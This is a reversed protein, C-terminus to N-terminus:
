RAQAWAVFEVVDLRFRFLVVLLSAPLTKEADDVGLSWLEHFLFVLSYWYYWYPFSPPIHLLSLRLPAVSRPALVRTWM